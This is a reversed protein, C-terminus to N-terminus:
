AHHLLQKVVYLFDSPHFPKAFTHTIGMSKALGLYEPSEPNQGKDMMAVIKAHPYQQRAEKLESKGRRKPIQTAAIIMDVPQQTLPKPATSLPKEKAAPLDVVVFDGYSELLEKMVRRSQQDKDIILIKQTM